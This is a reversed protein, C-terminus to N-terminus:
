MEVSQLLISVADNLVEIVGGDTKYEHTADDAVVKITGSSLSSVIAAHGALVEFEGGSGPVTVSSIPGEFVTKGPTLIHLEM